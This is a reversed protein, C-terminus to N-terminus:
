ESLKSLPMRREGEEKEERSTWMNTPRLPQQAKLLLKGRPKGTRPRYRGHTHISAVSPETQKKSFGQIAEEPRRSQTKRRKAAWLSTTEAFTPFGVDQSRPRAM